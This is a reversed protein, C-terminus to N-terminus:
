FDGNVVLETLMKVVKAQHFLPEFICITQILKKNHM